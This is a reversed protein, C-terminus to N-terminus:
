AEPPKAPDRITWVIAIAVGLLVFLPLANVPAELWPLYQKSTKGLVTLWPLQFGAVFVQVMNDMVSGQSRVMSISWNIVFSVLAFSYALWRPMRLLVAAAPLFLFPIVPALYRIGTVYQLRTYQVCGFFLIFAVAYALCFWTERSPLLSTGRRNLWPAAFALLTIPAVVFVGYRPEILLLRVLEGSLGGVGKYGVDIWEVPPMWHQPPHFWDGFSAWQYYFLMLVPPIAGAAYWLSDRFGQAFNTEDRRVWLSYLGLLGLSLGGSYDSLLCFGGLFGALLYRTRLSWRLHGGPNWIMVFALLSAIGIGLNQNLYGTRFFVPTGFAYLLSLGLATTRSLGLQGLLSFILVASYATLPAMCLAQTVAGVLGFRVDLGLRRVKHYFEVRRWRPDNYQTTTDAPGRAALTKKVVLDIAPKTIFYPIAGVFSIGPNAGHHAGGHPANPPNQFIDVHMGLYPDLRFTHNEVISLVLYHERVFDTAFHLVYVMWCTLFLRIKVSRLSLDALSM